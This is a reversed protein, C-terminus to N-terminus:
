APVRSSIIRTTAAAGPRRTPVRHPTPIKQEPSPELMCLDRGEVQTQYPRFPRAIRPRDILYQLHPTHDSCQSRRQIMKGKRFAYPVPHPLM